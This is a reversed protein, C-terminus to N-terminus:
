DQNTDGDPYEQTFLGLMVEVAGRYWDQMARTFIEDRLEDTPVLKLWRRALKLKLKNTM